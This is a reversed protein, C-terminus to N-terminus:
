KGAGATNRTWFLTKTNEDWFEQGKPCFEDRVEKTFSPQVLCVRAITDRRTRLPVVANVRLLKSYTAYRWATWLSGWALWLPSSGTWMKVPAARPSAEMAWGASVRDGRKCLHHRRGQCSISEGTCRSTGTVRKQISTRSRHHTQHSCGRDFGPGWKM